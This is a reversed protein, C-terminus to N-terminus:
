GKVQPWVFYSWQSKAFHEGDHGEDHICQHGGATAQCRKPKLETLHGNHM